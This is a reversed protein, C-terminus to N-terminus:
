TQVLTVTPRVGTSAGALRPSWSRCGHSLKRLGNVTSMLDLAALSSHNTRSPFERPVHNRPTHPNVARPVVVSRSHCVAPMVLSGSSESFHQPLCRAFRCWAMLNLHTTSAISIKLPLQYYWGKLHFLCSFVAM